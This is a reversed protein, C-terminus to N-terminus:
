AACFKDAYTRATRAINAAYATNDGGVWMTALDSYTVPRELARMRDHVIGQVAKTRQAIPNDIVVGAYMLVHQLHALVGDDVSAFREGPKGAVTAGVGAFNNDDPAVGGTFNLYNTEILMQFFAYDWRVGLCAGSSKQVCEGLSKYLQALNSFRPNIDRPPKLARNRMRVFEMLRDPTVCPPVQNAPGSIIEPLSGAQPQAGHSRVSLVPGVALLALIACARATWRAM